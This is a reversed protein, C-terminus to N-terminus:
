KEALFRLEEKVAASFESANFALIKECLVTGMPAEKSLGLAEMQVRSELITVGLVEKGDHILDICVYDEDAWYVIWYDKTTNLDVKQNNAFGLHKTKELGLGVIWDALERMIEWDTQKNTM